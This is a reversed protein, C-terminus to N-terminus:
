TQQSRRGSLRDAIEATFPEPTRWRGPYHAPIYPPAAEPPYWSYLEWARYKLANQIAPHCDTMSMLLSPTLILNAICTYCRDDYCSEPWIHCVSYNRYARAGLPLANKLAYNAYTNDDLRIGELVDGKREAGKGYRRTAPYWPGVGGNAKLMEHVKPNAWVSAAAVLAALDMSTEREAMELLQLGDKPSLEPPAMCVMITSLGDTVQRLVRMESFQCECARDRKNQRKAIPDLKARRTPM